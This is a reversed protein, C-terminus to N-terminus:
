DTPLKRIGGGGAYSGASPPKNSASLPNNICSITESGTEEYVPKNGHYVYITSKGNENKKIRLGNEDYFFHACTGDGHSIKILRNETDYFYTDTQTSQSYVRIYPIRSAVYWSSVSNDDDSRAVADITAKSAIAIRSAPTGNCNISTNGPESINFLWEYHKNQPNLDANMTNNDYIIRVQAGIPTDNSFGFIIYSAKVSTRADINCTKFEKNYTKTEM